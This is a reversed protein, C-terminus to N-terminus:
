MDGAGVKKGKFQRLSRLPGFAMGTGLKRAGTFVTVGTGTGTMAAGAKIEFRGEPHLSVKPIPGHKGGAQLLMKLDRKPRPLAGCQGM